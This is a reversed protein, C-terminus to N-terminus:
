LEAKAYKELTHFKQVAILNIDSFTFNYGVYKSYYIDNNADDPNNVDNSVKCDKDYSSTSTFSSGYSISNNQDLIILIILVM